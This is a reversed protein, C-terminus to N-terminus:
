GNTKGGLFQKLSLTLTICLGSKQYSTQGTKISEGRYVTSFKFKFIEYVSKSSCIQLTQNSQCSFLSRCPTSRQHPTEQVSQEKIVRLKYVWRM